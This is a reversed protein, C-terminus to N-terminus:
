SECMAEDNSFFALFPAQTGARGSAQARTHHYPRPVLCQPEAAVCGHQSLVHRYMLGPPPPAPPSPGGQAPPSQGVGLMSGADFKPESAFYIFVYVVSCSTAGASHTTLTLLPTVHRCLLHVARCARVCICMRDCHVPPCSQGAHTGQKNWCGRYTGYTM